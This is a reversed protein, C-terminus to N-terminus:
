MRNKRSNGHVNWLRYQIFDFRPRIKGIQDPRITDLQTTRPRVVLRATREVMLLGRAEDNMGVLPIIMTKAAALLPIDEREHHLLLPQTEPLGRPFKCLLATHRDLLLFIRIGRMTRTKQGKM